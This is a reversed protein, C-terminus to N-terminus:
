YDDNRGRCVGPMPTKGFFDVHAREKAEAGRFSVTSSFRRAVDRPLSVISRPKWM